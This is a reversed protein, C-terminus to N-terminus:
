GSRGSEQASKLNTAYVPDLKEFAKLFCDDVIEDRLFVEDAIEELTRNQLEAIRFDAGAIHVRASYRGAGAAADGGRGILTVIGLAVVAVDPTLSTDAGYKRALDIAEAEEALANKTSQLIIKDTLMENM